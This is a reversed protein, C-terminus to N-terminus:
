YGVSLDIVSGDLANVVLIADTEDFGQCGRADIDYLGFFTWSPVLYAHEINNKDQVRTLGLRIEKIVIKADNKIPSSEWKAYKFMVMKEFSQIADNVSIIKAAPVTIEIDGYNEKFLLGYIGADDVFLTIKEYYWTPVYSDTETTGNSFRDDTLTINIDNIKRTFSIEYVCPCNQKVENTILGDPIMPAIRANVSTFDNLGIDSILQEAYDRADDLSRKPLCIKVEGRDIMPQITNVPNNGIVYTNLKASDNIDRLYYIFGTQSLRMEFVTEQSSWGYYSVHGKERLTDLPDQEKFTPKEPKEAAEELLEAIAANIEEITDYKDLNGTDRMDAWMQAQSIYYSRPFDILEGSDNGILHKIHQFVEDRIIGHATIYVIPVTAAEPIVVDADISIDIDTQTSDMEKTIHLAEPAHVMEEVSQLEASQAEEIMQDTDKKLVVEEKPTPVCGLLITIFAILVAMTKKM